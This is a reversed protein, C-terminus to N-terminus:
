SSGRRDMPRCTVRRRSAQIELAHLGARIEETSRAPTPFPIRIDRCRRLRQLRLVIGHRDLQAPWVRVVGQLHEPELLATLSEVFRAHSKDLHSLISGEHAALPDPVAVGFEAVPVNTWMGSQELLVGRPCIRLVQGAADDVVAYGGVRLRARIRDPMPLPAADAIEVLVPRWPVSESRSEQLVFQDGVRAEPEVPLGVAPDLWTVEASAASALVTRAREAESPGASQSAGV